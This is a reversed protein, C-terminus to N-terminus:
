QAPRRRAQRWLWGRALLQSTGGLCLVALAIDVWGNEAVAAVLVIVAVILLGIGAATLVARFTGWDYLRIYVSGITLQFSALFFGTASILCSLAIDRWPQGPTTATALSVIAPLSFGALVPAVVRSFSEDGRDKPMYPVAVPRAAEYLGRGKAVAEATLLTNTIEEIPGLYTSVVHRWAPLYAYSLDKDIKNKGGAGLHQGLQERTVGTTHMVQELWDIFAEVQGPSRMETMQRVNASGRLSSLWNMTRLSGPAHSQDLFPQHLSGHANPL